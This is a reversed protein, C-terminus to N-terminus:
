LGRWALRAREAAGTRCEPEQSWGLIVDGRIINWAVCSGPPETCPGVARMPRYRDLADSAEGAIRQWAEIKALNLVGGIQALRRERAIQNVAHAYLDDYACWTALAALRVNDNTPLPAPPAPPEGAFGLALVLVLLSM